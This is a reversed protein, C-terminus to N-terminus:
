FRPLIYTTRCKIQDPLRSEPYRTIALQMAPPHHSKGVKSTGIGDRPRPYGQKSILASTKLEGQLSVACRQLLIKCVDTCAETWWCLLINFGVYTLLSWSMEYLIRRNAAKSGSQNHQRSIHSSLRRSLCTLRDSTEARNDMVHVNYRATRSSGAIECLQSSIQM